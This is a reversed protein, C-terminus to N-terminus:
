CESTVLTVNDRANVTFAERIGNLESPVQHNM